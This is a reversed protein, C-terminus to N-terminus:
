LLILGAPRGRLATIEDQRILIIADAAAAASGFRLAGRVRGPVFPSAHIAIM